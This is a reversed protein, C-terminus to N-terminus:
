AAVRREHRFMARLGASAAAFPTAAILLLVLAVFAMPWFVVAGLVLIPALVLWALAELGHEGQPAWPEDARPSARGSRGLQEGPPPFLGALRNVPQM